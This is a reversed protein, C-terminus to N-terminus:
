VFNRFIDWPHSLTNHSDLIGKFNYPIRIWKLPLNVIKGFRKISDKLSIMEMLQRKFNRNKLIDPKFVALNSMGKLYTSLIKSSFMM